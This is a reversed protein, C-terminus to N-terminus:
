ESEGKSHGFADATVIILIDTVTYVLWHSVLSAVLHNFTHVCGEDWFSILYSSEMQGM